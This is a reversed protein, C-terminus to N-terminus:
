PATRTLRISLPQPKSAKITDYGAAARNQIAPDIGDAASVGTVTDQALATSAVPNKGQTATITFVPSCHGSPLPM